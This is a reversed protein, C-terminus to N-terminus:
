AECVVLAYDGLGMMRDGAVEATKTILQQVAGSSPDFDVDKVEGLEVGHETLIRSGLVDGSTDTREDKVLSSASRVTVADKGFGVVNEWPLLDVDGQTKKLHMGLVKATRPEVIFGSITGVTEADETSVVDLGKGESFRM